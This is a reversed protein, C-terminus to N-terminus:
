KKHKLLEKIHKLGYWWSNSNTKKIEKLILKASKTKLQKEVNSIWNDCDKYNQELYEKAQIACELLDTDKAIIAEKTKKDHMEKFNNLIEDSIKKPLNQMQEKLAKSEPVKYDVYRAGIKHLDNIRTEPIDHFMLMNVVKNSDAGELEAIVKGIIISRFSHEAVTEPDKIGAAWWGSRKVRKLQGLEFFFKAIKKM